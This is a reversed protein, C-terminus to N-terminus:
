PSTIQVDANLNQWDPLESVKLKTDFPATLERSGSPGISPLTFRFTGVPDEESHETSGWLTVTATLDTIEKAAHSVVIFRVQPKNRSEEYIRIGVVEISKQLPNTLKARAANAASDLGTSTSPRSSRFYQIGYYIGAGIVLIGVFFLITLLWTPM